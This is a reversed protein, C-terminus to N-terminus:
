KFQRVYKNKGSKKDEEHKTYKHVAAAILSCPIYVASVIIIVAGIKGKNALMSFVIITSVASVLYHLLLASGFSIGKIKFIKLAYAIILSLVYFEFLELLRYSSRGEFEMLEYVTSFFFVIFTFILSAPYIVDKIFKKIAEM